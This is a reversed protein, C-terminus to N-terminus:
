HFDAFYINIHIHIHTHITQEITRERAHLAPDLVDCYYKFVFVFVKTQVEFVIKLVREEWTLNSKGSFLQMKNIIKEFASKADVNLM